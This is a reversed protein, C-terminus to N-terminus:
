KNATCIASHYLWFLSPPQSCTIGPTFYPTYMRWVQFNHDVQFGFTEIQWAKTMPLILFSSYQLEEILQRISQYMESPTEIRIMLYELMELKYLLPTEISKM